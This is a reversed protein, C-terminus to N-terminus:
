KKLEITHYIPLFYIFWTFPIFFPIFFTTAITINSIVITINPHLWTYAVSFIISNWDIHPKKKDNEKFSNETPELTEQKKKRFLKRITNMFSGKEKCEISHMNNSSVILM